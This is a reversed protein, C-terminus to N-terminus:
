HSPPAASASVPEIWLRIFGVGLTRDDHGIGLQTPSIPHPVLFGIAKARYPNDFEISREEPTSALGFKQMSQGVFATVDERTNPGLAMALVHLKFREPLPAPFELKVVSGSSWAGWAESPFLGSGQVGLPLPKNFDMTKPNRLRVLTYGGMNVEVTERGAFPHDGIVLAWTKDDAAQSADYPAGPPIFQMTAAPNDIYFLTRFLGAMDSGVVVLGKADRGPVYNRAFIGAKDFLNPSVAQRLDRSVSYTAVIVYIPAYVCIFVTKGAKESCVWLCLSGLSMLGLVLFGPWNAIMGRIEPSDVLNPTYPAMRTYLGYLITVAFPLAIVGKWLRTRRFVGVSTQCVVLAFMAPFVFGYYRMHLRTESLGIGVALTGFVAAVAVLTGLMALTLFALRSRADRDGSSVAEVLYYVGAALPLGYLLCLAVLQGKVYYGTMLAFHLSIDRSNLVSGAFASYLPGFTTLGNRGALVFSIAWKAGFTGIVIVISRFFITQFSLPGVWVAFALVAPVLFLAHPKILALIGLLIGLAAWYILRSKNHLGISFLLTVWFVFFYMTEPTYFATYVNFPGFVCLVTVWLATPAAAFRRFFLYLVPVSAAFFLDNLLRAAALFGDGSISTIHYVWLYIYNPLVSDKLPLLRSLRSYHYEDSFVVPYLGTNRLFLFMLLLCVAGSLAALLAVNGPIRGGAPFGQLRARLLDRSSAGSLESM